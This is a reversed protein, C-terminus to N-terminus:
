RQFQADYLQIREVLDAKILDEIAKTRFCYVHVIAKQFLEDQLYEPHQGFFACFSDLFEIAMAPLNMYFRTLAPIEKSYSRLLCDQIYQRACANSPYVKGQLKNANVNMELYRFCEPNLDSAFVTAEKEKAARLSFPGVGCFADCIVDKETIEQLVRDRESHLKSCWYVKEFNLVMNVKGEHLKTEYDGEGSILELEPTRYVNHLKDTKNVV